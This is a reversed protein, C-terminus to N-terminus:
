MPQQLAVLGVVNGPRPTFMAESYPSAGAIRIFRFLSLVTTTPRGPAKGVTNSSM